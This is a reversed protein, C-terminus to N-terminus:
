LTKFYPNGLKTIGFEFNNQQSIIPNSTYQLNNFNIWTSLTLTNPNIFINNVELSNQNQADFVMAFDGVPTDSTYKPQVNYTPQANTSSDATNFVIVQNSDINIKTSLANNDISTYYFTNPLSSDDAKIVIKNMISATFNAAYKVNDTLIDNDSFFQINFNQIINADINDPTFSFFLPVNNAPTQYFSYVGNKNLTIEPSKINNFYFSNNSYSVNYDFVYGESDFGLQIVKNSPTYLKVVNEISLPSAYVKISRIFINQQQPINLVGSPEVFTGTSTSLAIDVGDIYTHIVGNECTLTL